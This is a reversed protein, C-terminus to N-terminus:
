IGCILSIMHYEDKQSVESLTVIETDIWTVAFPMIEKKKIVSYYKMTYIHWLEKIWEDPLPCKPQKWTRAVMLLSAIFM